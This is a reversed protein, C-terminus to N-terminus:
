LRCTAFAHNSSLWPGRLVRLPLRFHNQAVYALYTSFQCKALDLDQRAEFLMVARGWIADSCGYFFAQRMGQELVWPQPETWPRGITNPCVTHLIGRGRELSLPTPLCVKYSICSGRDWSGTKLVLSAKSVTCIALMLFYLIIFVISSGRHIASAGAAASSNPFPRNNQPTSKCYLLDLCRPM